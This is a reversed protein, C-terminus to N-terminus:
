IVFFKHFIDLDLSNIRVPLRDLGQWPKATEAAAGRTSNEQSGSVNWSSDPALGGSWSLKAISTELASYFVTPGRCILKSHLKAIEAICSREHSRM